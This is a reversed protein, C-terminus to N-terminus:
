QKKVCIYQEGNARLLRLKVKTPKLKYTFIYDLSEDLSQDQEVADIIKQAVMFNNTCPAVQTFFNQGMADSPAIGALDSEYQNYLEITGNPSLKIVGFEMHNIAEESSGHLQEALDQQAIDM